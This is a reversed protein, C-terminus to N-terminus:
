KTNDVKSGSEEREQGTFPYIDNKVTNIHAASFLEETVV